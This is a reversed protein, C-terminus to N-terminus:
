FYKFDNGAGCDVIAVNSDLLGKYFDNIDQQNGQTFIYSADLESLYGNQGLQTGKNKLFSNDIIKNKILYYIFYRFYWFKGSFRSKNPYNKANNELLINIKELLAKCDLKRKIYVIVSLCLSIDDVQEDILTLIEQKSLIGKTDIDFQVTYLLIQYLEQSFNNKKYYFIKSKLSKINDKFYKQIRKKALIKLEPTTFLDEFLDMFKNTLEPKKISIDLIKELLSTNTKSNNFLFLDEITTKESFQGSFVITRQLGSFIIKLAGKNGQSEETVCLDIYNVILDRQAKLNKSSFNSTDFFSFIRSKSRNNNQPFDEITTKESNLYLNFERCLLNVQEMFEEKESELSFPFTFDDVYRAYKFGKSSLKKDFCCMFLEAVIRSVLNGTPIGHTEGYQCLEILTDLENAFGRHRNRKAEEKGMLMWPISHTYLTHYFNSLDLHLLKNGSFLLKSKIEETVDYKYKPSDFYKSISFSNELFVSTFEDKNDCIYKVLNTYSYLNPLKYQRRTLGKKPVSFYIPETATKMDYKSPLKSIAVESFHTLNFMKYFTEASFYDENDTDKDRNKKYSFYGYKILYKLDFIENYVNELDSM